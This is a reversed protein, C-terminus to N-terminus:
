KSQANSGPVHQARIQRMLDVSRKAVSVRSWRRDGYRKDRMNTELQSRM